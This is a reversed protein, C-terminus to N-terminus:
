VRGLALKPSQAARKSRGIWFDNWFGGISEISAYTSFSMSLHPLFKKSFTSPPRNFYTTNTSSRPLTCGSVADKGIAWNEQRLQPCMVNNSAFRM